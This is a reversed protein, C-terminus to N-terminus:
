YSTSLRAFNSIESESTWFAKEIAMRIFSLCFNFNKQRVTLHGDDRFPVIIHTHLIYAVDILHSNSPFYEDLRQIFDALSSNGFVRADEHM